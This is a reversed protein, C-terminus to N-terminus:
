GKWGTIKGPGFDKSKIKLYIEEFLLLAGHHNRKTQFDFNAIFEPTLEFEFEVGLRKKLWLIVNTWYRVTIEDWQWNITLITDGLTSLKTTSALPYSYLTESLDIGYYFMIRLPFDNQLDYILSTGPASISPLNRSVNTFDKICRMLMPALKTKIPKEGDDLIYPLYNDSYAVWDSTETEEDYVYKYYCNLSTVFYISNVPCAPLLNYTEVTGTIIDETVDIFNDTLLDDPGQFDFNFKLGAYDNKYVKLTDKVLGDDFTEQKNSKILDDLFILEVKRQKHDFVPLIQATIYFENLFENIDIDPVHNKYNISNKFRNVNSATVQNITLLGEKIVGVTQGTTDYFEVVFHILVNSSAQVASIPISFEPERTIWTKFDAAAVYYHVALSNQAVGDVYPVFTVTQDTDYDYHYAKINLKCNHIEEEKTTYKYTTTNWCSDADENDGTSDDDIPIIEGSAQIEEQATQTARVFYKTEIEDLAYNNYIMAKKLMADELVAGSVSYELYEFIRKIIYLLYLQPILTNNSNKLDYFTVTVFHNIIGGFNENKDDYFKPNYISPFNHIVAPYALLIQAEAHKVISLYSLDVDFFEPLNKNEILDYFLGSGIYMELQITKANSSNAYWLGEQLKIGNYNIEGSKEATVVEMRNLRFPFNFALANVNTYPITVQFIFSGKESSLPTKITLNFSVDKIELAQTDVRLELM